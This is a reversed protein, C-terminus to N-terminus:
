ADRPVSLCLLHEHLQSSVRSDRPLPVKSISSLISGDPPHPRAVGVYRDENSFILQPMGFGKGAAAYVRVGTLILSIYTLAPPVRM